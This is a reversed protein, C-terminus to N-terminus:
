SALGAASEFVAAPASTDEGAWHSTEVPLAVEEQLRDPLQNWLASAGTLILREPTLGLTQRAHQLTKQIENLWRTVVPEIQFYREQVSYAMKRREAEEWTTRLGMQFAETFHRGALRFQRCYYPQGNQVTLLLTREHGCSIISYCTERLDPRLRRYARVLALPAPEVTATPAQPWIDNLQQQCAQLFTRSLCVYFFGCRQNPGLPPVSMTYLQCEQLSHPIERAIAAPLAVELENAKLSPTELYGAQMSPDLGTIQLAGSKSKLSDLLPALQQSALGSPSQSFTRPGMQQRQIEQQCIKVTHHGLDIGVLVKKGMLSEAIKKQLM